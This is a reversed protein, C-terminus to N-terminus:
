GLNRYIKLALEIIQKDEETATAIRLRYNQNTLESRIIEYPLTVRWKKISDIPFWGAKVEHKQVAKQDEVWNGSVECTGWFGTGYERFLVTDGKEVKTRNPENTKFYYRKTKLITSTDWDSDEYSGKSKNSFIWVKPM